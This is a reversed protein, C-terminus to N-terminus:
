PESTESIIFVAKGLLEELSFTNVVNVISGGDAIVVDSSGPQLRIYAGGLLGDSIIAVNTDEPLKLDGRLVMIIQAKFTEPHIDLKDVVGVKIGGIRVDNGVNLGKISQFNATIRQKGVLESDASYDGSNKWAWLLFFLAVGLVFAGLVIEFWRQQIM